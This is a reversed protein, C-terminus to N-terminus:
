QPRGNSGQGSRRTAPGNADREPAPDIRQLRSRPFAYVKLEGPHVGGETVRGGPYVAGVVPEWPDYNGNTPHAAVTSDTGPIAVEDARGGPPTVVVLRRGTERDRVADGPVVRHERCYHPGSGAEANGVFVRRGCDRCDVAVKGPPPVRGENIEIAVRRLHKCRAGRFQHDPCTCRGAGVDVLYSGSDTAVEYLNTGFATVSMPETRARLSRDTLERDPPTPLSQKPSAATNGSHTM